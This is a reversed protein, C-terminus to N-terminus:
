ILTKWCRVTIGKLAMHWANFPLAIIIIIIIIIIIVVTEQFILPTDTMRALLM